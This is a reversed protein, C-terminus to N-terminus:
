KVSRWVWCWRRRQWLAQRQANNRTWKLAVSVLVEPMSDAIRPVHHVTSTDDPGPLDPHCPHLLPSPCTLGAQFESSCEPEWKTLTQQLLLDRSVKMKDTKYTKKVQRLHRPDAWCRGGIKSFLTNLSLGLFEYDIEHFAGLSQTGLDQAPNWQEWDRCTVGDWLLAFSCM